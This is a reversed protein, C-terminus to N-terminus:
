WSLKNSTCTFIVSSLKDTLKVGQSMFLGRPNQQFLLLLSHQIAPCTFLHPSVMLTILKLFMWEVWCAPSGSKDSVYSLRHTSPMLGQFQFLSKSFIYSFWWLMEDPITQYIWYCSIILHPRLWWWIWVNRSLSIIQRPDWLLNTTLSSRKIGLSSGRRSNSLPSTSFGM